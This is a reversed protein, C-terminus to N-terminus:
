LKGWVRIVCTREKSTYFMVVSMPSGNYVTTFSTVYGGKEQNFQWPYITQISPTGSEKFVKVVDAHFNSYTQKEAFSVANMFCGEKDIFVSQNSAIESNVSSMHSITKTLLNCYRKQNEQNSQAFATISVFM